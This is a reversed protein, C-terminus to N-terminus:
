ISGLPLLFAEEFPGDVLFGWAEPVDWAIVYMPLSALFIGFGMLVKAARFPRLVAADLFVDARPAEPDIGVGGLFARAAEPPSEASATESSQVAEEALASSALWLGLSAALLALAIRGVRSRM